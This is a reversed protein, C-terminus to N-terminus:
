EKDLELLYYLSQKEQPQSIKYSLKFVCTRKCVEDFEDMRIVKDINSHIYYLDPNSYPVADILSKIAPITKYGLAIIYDILFFDLLKKESKHYENFFDKMFSNVINGKVGGMCFGTWRYASVFIKDDYRNQKITFFPLNWSELEGTLYITSDLWIGGHDALLNSRVIDSFHTLSIEKRKVKDLIYDPITIYDEFNDMTIIHVEHRGSYERISKLCKKVLRPMQEEGQFWCIWIPCDSKLGESTSDESKYVDIIRSYRKELYSLIANHKINPNHLLKPLIIIKFALSVNWAKCLSVFSHYIDFLKNRM